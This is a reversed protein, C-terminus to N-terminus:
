RWVKAHHDVADCKVHSPDDINSEQVFEFLALSFSGQHTSHRRSKETKRTNEKM